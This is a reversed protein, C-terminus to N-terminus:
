ICLCDDTICTQEAYEAKTAKEYTEKILIYYIIYFIMNNIFINKM